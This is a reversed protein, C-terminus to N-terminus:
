TSKVNFVINEVTKRVGDKGYVNIGNLALEIAGSHSKNPTIGFKAILGKDYLHYRYFKKNKRYFLAGKLEPQFELYQLGPEKVSYRFIMSIIEDSKSWYQPGELKLTINELSVTIEEKWIEPPLIQSIEKKLKDYITLFNKSTKISLDVPSYSKNDVRFAKLGPFKEKITTHDVVIAIARPDMQQYLKQTSVDTGSLFISLGPHSHIWGVIFEEKESKELLVDYISSYDGIKVYVSSGSDMPLVDTVHVSITSGDDVFKGFLFGITEQWTSSPLYPNAYRLVFKLFKKYADEEMLIM